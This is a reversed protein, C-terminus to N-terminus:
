GFISKDKNERQINGAFVHLRSTETRSRGTHLAHSLRIEVSTASPHGAVHACIYRLTCSSSRYVGHDQLFMEVHIVDGQQGTEAQQESGSRSLLEFGATPLLGM